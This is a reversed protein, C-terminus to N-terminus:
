PTLGILKLQHMTNNLSTYQIGLGGANIFQAITRSYDDILLTGEKAWNQKLASGESLNVKLDPLYKKVWKLKQNKLEERLPNTHMTSSLIEVNIGLSIWYPILLDKLATYFLTPKAKEFMNRKIAEQILPFIFEQKKGSITLVNIHDKINSITPCLLKFMDTDDVICGDMDLLINNVNLINKNM